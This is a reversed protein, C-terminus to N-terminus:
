LLTIKKSIETLESFFYANNNNFHLIDAIRNTSVAHM